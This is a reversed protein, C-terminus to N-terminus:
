KGTFDTRCELTRQGITMNQISYIVKDPKMNQPCIKYTSNQGNIQIIRTKNSHKEKQAYHLKLKQNEQTPSTINRRLYASRGVEDM